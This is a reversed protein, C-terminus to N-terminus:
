PRCTRIRHSPVDSLGCGRRCPTRSRRRDDCWGFPRRADEDLAAIVSLSEGCLNRWRYRGNRGAREVDRRHSADDHRRRSEDAHDFRRRWRSRRRRGHKRCRRERRRQRRRRGASPDVGAVASGDLAGCVVRTKGGGGGGGGAGRGAAPGAGGNFGKGGGGVETQRDIVVTFPGASGLATVQGDVTRTEVSFM